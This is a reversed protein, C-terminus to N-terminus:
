ANKWSRPPQGAWDRRPRGRIEDESISVGHGALWRQMRELKLDFNCTLGAREMAEQYAVLAPVALIRGYTLVNPLTLTQSRAPAITMTTQYVM